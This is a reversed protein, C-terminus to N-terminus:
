RCRLVARAAATTAAAEALVMGWAMGTAEFLPALVLALSLNVVAVMMTIGMVARDKGLALLWGASLISTLAIFPVMLCLVRLLGVSEKFDSGFLIEVILPAFIWLATASAVGFAALASVSARRLQGARDSADTALLYTIRPFVANVLPAIFRTTARIVREAAGFHAVVASPVFLGLLVVNGGTYLGIAASGIFLNWGERLASIAGPWTPWLFPIERYMLANILVSSLVTAIAWAALFRWGDGADRVLGFTLGAVALRGGLEVLAARRVREVGVFYWWTPSLNYAVATTWALLLLEPNERLKPIAVLAGLAVLTAGGALLGKAGLIGAAIRALSYRDDRSAAVARSGSPNFGYEVLTGLLWSVGQAYLVAGLADEGLVRALYPLTVLPLIFLAFQM